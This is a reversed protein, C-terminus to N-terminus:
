ARPTLGIQQLRELYPYNQMHWEDILPREKQSGVCTDVLVTGQPTRLVISHYSMRPLGTAPDVFRSDKFVRTASFDDQSLHPFMFDLQRASTEFEQVISIEFPGSLINKNQM